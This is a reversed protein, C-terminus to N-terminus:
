DGNTMKEVLGIGIHNITFRGEEIDGKSQRKLDRLPGTLDAMTGFSWGMSKFCTFVHDVTITDTKRYEKFWAAIALYKANYGDPNKENLFDALSKGGSTLDLDLVKPKSIYKKPKSTKPASAASNTAADGETEEEAAEATTDVSDGVPPDKPHGNTSAALAKQHGSRLANTIANTFDSLNGNPVDAELMVFRVRAMGEPLPVQKKSAM